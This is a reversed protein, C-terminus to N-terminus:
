VPCLRAVDAHGDKKKKEDQPTYMPLYLYPNSKEAIKKRQVNKGVNKENQQIIATYMQSTVSTFPDFRSLSLQGLVGLDRADLSSYFM